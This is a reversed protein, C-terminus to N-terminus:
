TLSYQIFLRCPVVRSLFFFLWTALAYFWFRLSTNDLFWPVQNLQPVALSRSKRSSRSWADIFRLSILSCIIRYLMIYWWSPEKKKDLTAQINSLHPLTVTALNIHISLHSGLVLFGSNCLIAPKHHKNPSAVKQDPCATKMQCGEREKEKRHLAIKHRFGLADASM